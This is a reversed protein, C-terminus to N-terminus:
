FEAPKFMKDAKEYEYTSNIFNTKSVKKADIEDFPFKYMLYNYQAANVNFTGNKNM